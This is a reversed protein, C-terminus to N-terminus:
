CITVMEGHKEDNKLFIKWYHILLFTPPKLIEVTMFMFQSKETRTCASDLFIFLYFKLLTKIKKM